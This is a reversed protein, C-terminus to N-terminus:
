KQLANRNMAFIIGIVIISLLQSSYPIWFLQAILAIAILLLKFPTVESKNIINKLFFILLIATVGQTLYPIFILPTPINALIALLLYKNIGDSKTFENKVIKIFELIINNKM